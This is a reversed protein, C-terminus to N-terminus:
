VGTPSVPMPPADEPFPLMLTDDFRPYERDLRNMFENWNPSYKMLMVVGALHERLRPHGHDDTLWQFLRNKLRGTDTRPTRAQLEELVKPAIRRYVIDNTWYAVVRPTGKGDTYTGWDRLRFIQQYFDPPFTRVWARLEKAIFRELVVALADRARYEQYGTAEDVLAIIGVTAFGHQLVACREAIHTLRADLHGRQNADIIVACIDPLITAEYGDSTGGKPLIFRIPSDARVALGKDDIGKRTLSEMLSVIRRAGGKGGSQSLGLAAQLGRQSFVRRGDALVYCPLEVGGIRVPKDPAGYVARGITTTKGERIWRTMVAKRASASREESSLKAARAKGGKSAGLKSLAAAHKKTSEDSM